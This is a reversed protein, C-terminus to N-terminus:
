VLLTSLFAAVGYKIVFYFFPLIIAMMAFLCDLLPFLALGVQTGFSIMELM